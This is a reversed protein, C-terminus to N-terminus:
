RCIVDTLVAGGHEVQTRYHKFAMQPEANQLWNCQQLVALEAFEDTEATFVWIPKTKEGRSVPCIRTIRKM